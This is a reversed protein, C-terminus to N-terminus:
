GDSCPDFEKLLQAQLPHRSRGFAYQDHVRWWKSIIWGCWYLAPYAVLGDRTDIIWTPRLLVVTSIGAIWFSITAVEILADFLTATGLAVPWTVRRRIVCTRRLAFSGSLLCVAIALYLIAHVQEIM